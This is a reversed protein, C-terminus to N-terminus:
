WVGSIDFMYCGQYGTSGDYGYHVCLMPKGTVSDVYEELHAKPYEAIPQYMGRLKGRILAYGNEQASDCHFMMPITYFGLGTNASSPSDIGSYGGPYIIEAFRTLAGNGGFTGISSRHMELTGTIGINETRGLATKHLNDYPLANTVHHGACFSNYPDNPVLSDFEGFGHIVNGHNSELIVYATKEDAIVTWEASVSLNYQKGFYDEAWQGNMSADVTAISEGARIYAVDADACNDDIQFLQRAGTLSRFVAFNNLEAFVEEWGAPYKVDDGVGYGDVLCARLLASMSGRSSSPHPPAGPDTSHYVKVAM